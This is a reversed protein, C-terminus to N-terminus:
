ASLLCHALSLYSHRGCYACGQRDFDQHLQERTCYGLRVHQLLIADERPQQQASDLPHYATAVAYWVAQRKSAELEQHM